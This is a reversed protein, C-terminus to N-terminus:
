EHVESITSIEEEAPVGEPGVREVSAAALRNALEAAQLPSRGQLVWAVLFAAAFIDGAGTPDVERAPVPSIEAKSRNQHLEAGRDGKTFLVLPFRKLIGALASRNYGLDEISLFAAADERDPLHAEPLPAPSIQGASDWDRMWGQLSYGLVSEPFSAGASLPIEGAVPALHVIKASRWTPPLLNLDLDSARELLTQVRGSAQYENKFTTTGPGPQNFLQIGELIELPLDEAGATFLAVRAGMRNALVASYVASGGLRYGQDVQDKTIHGIILYEPPDDPPQRNM